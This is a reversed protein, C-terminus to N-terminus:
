AGKPIKWNVFKRQKSDFYLLGASTGLWLKGKRDECIDLIIIQTGNPSYHEFTETDSVFRDLGRNTAIWLNKQKDEHIDRVLNDSISKINHIDNRFVTIRTGDYRNLGNRTGFWM